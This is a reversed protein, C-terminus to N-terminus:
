GANNQKRNIFFLGISGSVIAQIPGLFISSDSMLQFISKTSLPQLLIILLITGLYFFSIGLTLRYFFIDTEFLNYESKKQQHLDSFFISLMLTLNPLVLPLLWGWAEKINNEFKGFVTQLFFVFFIILSSLFWLTAIRKQAKSFEINM